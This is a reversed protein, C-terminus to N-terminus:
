AEPRLAPSDTNLSQRAIDLAHRGTTGRRATELVSAVHRWALAESARGEFMTEVARADGVWSGDDFVVYRLSAVVSDPDDHRGVAALPQGDLLLYGDLRILASRKSRDRALFQLNVQLATITKDAHNTVKIALSAQSGERLM